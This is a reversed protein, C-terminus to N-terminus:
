CVAHPNPIPQSQKSNGHIGWCFASHPGCGKLFWGWYKSKSLFGLFVYKEFTSLYPLFFFCWFLLVLAPQYSWMIAQQQAETARLAEQRTWDLRQDATGAEFDEQSWSVLPGRLLSAVRKKPPTLIDDVVTVWSKPHNLCLLVHFFM